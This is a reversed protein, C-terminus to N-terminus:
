ECGLNEILALIMAALRERAQGEVFDPPEPSGDCRRYAAWLQDRAEM